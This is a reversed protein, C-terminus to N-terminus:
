FHIPCFNQMANLKIHSTGKISIAKLKVFSIGKFNAVSNGTFNVSRLLDIKKGKVLINWKKREVLNKKCNM